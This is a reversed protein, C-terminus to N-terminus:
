IKTCEIRNAKGQEWERDPETAPTDQNTDDSGSEFTSM